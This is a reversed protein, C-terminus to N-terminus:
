DTLCKKLSEHTQERDWPCGQPCRLISIIELLEEMTHKEGEVYTKGNFTRMYIEM